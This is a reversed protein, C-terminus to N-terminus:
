HRTREAHAPALEVGPDVDTDRGPRRDVGGRRASDHDGAPDAAVAVVRADVVAASHRGTIAMLLRDVDGDALAHRLPLRDPEHVAGAVAEARVEMELDPDVAGGDIRHTVELCGYGSEETARKSTTIRVRASALVPDRRTRVTTERRRRGGGGPRGTTKRASQLSHM